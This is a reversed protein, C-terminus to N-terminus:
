SITEVRAAKGSLDRLYYLRARRVKGCSLVGPSLQSISGPSAQQKRLLRWTPPSRRAAENRPRRPVM